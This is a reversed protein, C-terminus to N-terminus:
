DKIASVPVSYIDRGGKGGPRDSSFYLSIGDRSLNPSGDWRAEPHNLSKLLVPKGWKQGARKSRFLGIGGGERPGQLYMTTGDPSVTAHCFGPDLEEIVAGEEFGRPGDVTKRSTMAVRLGDKTEKTFYLTKLDRGLWPHTEDGPTDITTLARVGAFVRHEGTSSPPLDRVAGFIDFKKNAPDKTSAFWITQPYIGYPTVFCSADNGKTEVQPGVLETNGWEKKARSWTAAYLDIKSEQSGDKSRSFYLRYSGQQGKMPVPHPDDEDAETNISVAQPGKALPPQGLAMPESLLLVLVAAGLFGGALFAWHKM